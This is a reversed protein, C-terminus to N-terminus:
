CLIGFADHRGRRCQPQHLVRHAVTADVSNNELYEEATATGLMAQLIIAVEVKQATLADPRGSVYLPAANKRAEAENAATEISLVTITEM